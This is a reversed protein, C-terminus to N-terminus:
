NALLMNFCKALLMTFLKALLMTFFKALLMTFFKALLMAAGLGVIYAGVNALSGVLNKVMSRAM